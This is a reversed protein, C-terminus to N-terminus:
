RKPVRMRFVASGALAGGIDKVVDGPSADRLPVFSQHYEDSMGYLAALAVALAFGAGSLPRGVGGAFARCTLFALVAYACGHTIWDPILSAPGIDSQSSAGFIAAAWAIPPGYLALARGAPRL